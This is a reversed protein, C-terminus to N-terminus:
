SIGHLHINETGHHGLETVLWHRISVKNHKRYRELFRKVALKAIENDLLYGKINNNIKIEEYLKKYEENSFTLTVFKGNINKQVDEYLRVKWKLAREKMCEICGGCGIPVYLVRADFFAPIVGGNKKNETYKKNKIIKPYLCM